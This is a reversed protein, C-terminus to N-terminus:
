GLVIRLQHVKGDDILPVSAAGALIKGDLETLAVGKSVSSPNEVKIKYISSHYRFEMSYNPWNRPICPDVSLTMGRVRLGLIWEVGARYLWGASGSYWTWGGRGLHPNEAYVDGAVVYPETKYRQVRVRSDTRGVPNLFRFMESAKDGDGLAAFAILTWTAAHTYQGGNERIGPLYGKIYGPDHTTKDFPPTLLLVVGEPRKVLLQDVAAMARVARGREAAGSIVAWSQAIADIKCEESSASGLPTGDDFYARRYWEGDWGDKELAAKLGSVHIRWKEARQHESRADAFKAFEWMVSHLFWGLWVSEGKGEQGVRNMGDNWDGTGMLPLGHTGVELSRDIARACHEFITGRAESVRPQFYSELQGEALEDGELFAVQEELVTMDGTAEIFQNVVYPLWLLDDSMRTRIGRGSPPHWWHQVDGQTFQHAASLLIQERAIGRRAVSLAMVDQLQDRFGYAGSAQYFGTRGWVRCSLTQYLLWRNLLVDMAPDPTSVQVNGLTDDWRRKVEELVGDLNEKRYRRLLERARDTNEAQGLFFVIEGQAGPKLEIVTQLAGCPDLGAGVKGSLLDGRELAAPCDASGNRGLFETRDGTYSNQQGRFAAFAVRGGFENKWASRALLAQSESDMETAIYPATARSNGLVWEVYATVSLRRPRGSDNRLTLRSIKIPDGSPVFQLLDLTIGHSAHQFVSYGQGHRAIYTAADDRIPLATPTWVEGTAEDRVYLAEGPTDFIHDNSWPTIQNEHSNLSWTFGSGSESVLFGFDPNAIVNVWPEPTRIGERLITVYERGEQVFGGLGNFFTLSEHPLEVEQQRAARAARGPPAAVPENQQSRTIQEVLTGRRSLLVARAVGQIQARIQASVIDGRLLFIKGSAGGVDPSLRLQSGRVLGELSDQLDQLYSTAKENIIVVDASLQKMRWYEHARLLQRILGIDESDDVRALVIPLDGSIGQSWLSSIELPTRSLADPSPRLSSDVYLVDNALRQFLIAEESTIGLHNLQVQAQTWALTITREFARSDRYKDALDIAEERTAAAITSFILRVTSGPPVHVTRRLSIIPDLVPGVTNSLPRGDMVSVPNKLSRTRGVFRARDTEYQLDGVTEADTFVVHAAWVPGDDNSRKRRTALLAGLEPAFETEVFLKAFAPHSVDAAQTTLSLEAYSTVQIDRARVGLNTISVRRVETDDESSVVVDLQVTLSRDRRVFEAHDEFFIAEYGDPEVTTPQYGASWVNGTQEDRLFIYQGWCDRTPDERWRTIAIDRWRSYGSGASTLMVAYRGNSLLHTRPTPENPLSFKRVVPAVMERIRSAASVEEARPRAVLVDRPTREQLLLETAQIIPESHFRTRMAGNTLVDAFAVLSMGQHHAMYTYIVAVHKGEPVRTKTYDLSEYFGYTGRGGEQAIRALNQVALSPEIMAALATAYPAIVLDDSLGRKLGLGPVGFSSYQYTFDIDRANFASESIGWPVGREAGYEMQRFVVQEYTQGLMSEEPSRMVLAPMLYEFMSASWSILASGRGVPTLSRGLQFWHSSPVEGKAIAIFSTLRAESALLDYCSADLTGDSPRFGISFLKRSEDYLFRFDMASFFNDATHAVALLRRSLASADHAADELAATWADIRALVDVNRAGDASTRARLTSLDRVASEFCEPADAITPLSRFYPEVADWEPSKGPASEALARIYKEDLRLMPLLIRADRAHSEICARAAEAWFRLESDPPEGLEQALTQAVDSVTQARERLDVFRRAWDRASAPLPELIAALADIANSLQKRTVTHTRKEDTIAGLSERLLHIADEIGALFSPEISVSEALDRCARGAVLLHGALNGSDVSSIYKPELPQLRVTDYWNYFHGRFLELQGLTHCTAELREVMEEAGIWGLDRACLNTLLSLGINTPSTRHAVIPKPDEQFNDPPLWHDVDTMFREFFRWTRRSISRLARIDSSSLPEVDQAPPPLSIWRAIAPAAAWLLVFPIATEIAHPRVFRVGALAALALVIGGSMRKYIGALKLDVAHRGQAATMWQLMNKHTFLVRVLTRVIADGMLWAQYAVFTLTLGIQSVGLTLDSLVNRLYSRKSIGGFRPHLGTLFPILPPVAIMTLVFRTWMWPSVHPLIWGVVMTLFMAPGSLTRRLNDIMKWRSIAPISVRGRDDQSTKGFGLIWPLLQWDGRAWRHQRLAAAEYHSPFEDFLEIDTALAARAFTGEFLDHSLLTNEAVKGGISEEFADLDYIGKGTFSGERFLDQYVDSVAAAYPDIGSPGSFIKQFVSGEHSTPLSPTVRPQVIGYGDVVRGLDASFEPRNLPHAMTGVLRSVTGRPLRTDADLTVVYRIAQFSHVDQGPIDMFSTNASGRLLHNLEHLKGRKREWGMWKAEQPNWQRRRHFLLFRAGGPAAGHSKNLKAISAIAADLLEDDGAASETAADTWDTLLAFRLDGDPNALFHIELDDVHREIAERSTLLTPVVVITRLTEPVGARLELRPLTRPGLLDTVVRNILAIALDSAPIAALLAMLVLYPPSLGLEKAHSLPIALIIGTLMAITGLYGPVAHRVYQRLLGRRWRIKFGLEKEFEARGHSILYYGPDSRRENGGQGNGGAEGRARKARQVAREAIEIESHNSGRALDEIAHRYYDRTAFDMEEFNSGERLATDVLSISEFFTHWDFESTLRMSTIINRVTVTMAAQEQLEARVIEDSTTGQATLREDLWTLIPGVKPDLDRLRQILRVAFARELPANGLSRLVVDPSVAQHGGTGLVQDALADAQLRAHRSRVIREAIRRLNEVMVIRLTIAVAWLEGITLPQVRQYAMVFNRLVTPDLRSDTHAIYAWAVGYVRPYGELHGSVLKPLKRYFGPPLDDRIERLQEEVIYFNDLLWEAAPTIGHEMEVAQATARYYELLRRGNEIVRPLLARGPSSEADVVEQAAALSEAHQELREVSFLEARIPEEIPTTIVTPAQATSM